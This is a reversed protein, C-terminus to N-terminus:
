QRFWCDSRKLSNRFTEYRCQLSPYNNILTNEIKEHLEYFRQLSDVEDRTGSGFPALSSLMEYGAKEVRASIDHANMGLNKFYRPLCVSAAFFDAQGEASVWEAGHITQYPAGGLVHGLEHCIVAAYADKTMGEVRTTGGLIMMSKQNSMGAGFYPSEWQADLIIPANFLSIIISPIQYFDAIKIQTNPAMEPTMCFYPADKPCVGAYLTTVLMNSLFIIKLLLKM